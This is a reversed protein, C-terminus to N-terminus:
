RPNKVASVTERLARWRDGYILNGVVITDALAGMEAAKEASDIGGGYFLRSGGRVTGGSSASNELAERAARVLHPDGYTGSYELYLIPLGLLRQAYRAYAAVDDPGLSTAARTLRAVASDGNLIVYGEALVQNWDFSGGFRKLAVQHAGVIWHVDPSNLVLPVLYGYPGPLLAEPTSVEILVPLGCGHLRKMLGAVKVRTVGQTGGLILADTGSSCVFDLKEAPIERDPDLKTINRWRVFEDRVTRAGELGLM